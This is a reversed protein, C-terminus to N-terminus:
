FHPRIHKRLLRMVGMPLVSSITGVIVAERQEYYHGIQLKIAHVIAPPVDSQNAGYGAIYIVEIADDRTKTAPWSQGDDLKIYPNGYRHHLNYITNSLTQQVDNM